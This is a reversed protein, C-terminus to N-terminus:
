SKMGYSLFSDSCIIELHSKKDGAKECFLLPVYYEANWEEIRGDTRGDM